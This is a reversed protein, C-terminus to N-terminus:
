SAVGLPMSNLAEVTRRKMIEVQNERIDISIANRGNKIAVAATTGSGGFCDLVTGGPPCCSLVFREVLQEPYPAENEHSLPSGMAGGGVKCEFVNGPNALQPATYGQQKKVGDAMTKTHMKNVRRGNAMRHSPDGGPAYKPVHGCAVNNSWPLRGRSHTACIIPEWDNRFWDPGGSGPIGVRKYIPPKRLIVGARHLDAMLLFPTASYKYDKTKGEIVWATLGKSVRVCEIFIEKCWDVHDQGTRKYDIGYTRCDDYPPSCVILDVSATAMKRLEALADGHIIQHNM